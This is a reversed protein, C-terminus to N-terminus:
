VRLCSMVVALHRNSVDHCTIFAQMSAQFHVGPLDRCMCVFPVLISVISTMAVSSVDISGGPKCHAFMLEGNQNGNEVIRCHSIKPVPETVADDAIRQRIVDRLRRVM